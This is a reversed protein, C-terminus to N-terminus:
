KHFRFTQVRFRTIEKPIIGRGKQGGMGQKCLYYQTSLTDSIQGPFIKSVQFATNIIILILNENVFINVDFHSFESKFYLTNCLPKNKELRRFLISILKKSKQTFWIILMYIKINETKNKAFALMSIMLNEQFYSHKWFFYNM